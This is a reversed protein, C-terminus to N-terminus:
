CTLFQKRPITFRENKVFKVRKFSNFHETLGLSPRLGPLSGPCFIGLGPVRGPFNEFGSGPIKRINKSITRSNRFKESFFDFFEPNEDPYGSGAALFLGPGSGPIKSGSGAFGFFFDARRWDRTLGLSEVLKM